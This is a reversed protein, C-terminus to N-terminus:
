PAALAASVVRHSPKSSRQWPLGKATRMMLAPKMAVGMVTPFAGGIRQALGSYMARAKSLRGFLLPISYRGQHHDGNISKTRAIGACLRWFKFRVM